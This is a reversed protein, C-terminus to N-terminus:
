RATMMAQEGDDRAAPPEVDVEVAVGELAHGGVYARRRARAEDREFAANLDHAGVRALRQLRAGVRAEEGAVDYLRLLVAARADREGVARVEEDLGVGDDGDGLVGGGLAAPLRLNADRDLAALYVYAGLLLVLARLVDDARV